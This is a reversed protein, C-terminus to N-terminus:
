VAMCYTYALNDLVLALNAALGAGSASVGITANILLSTKPKALLLQSPETASSNTPIYSFTQAPEMAGSSNYVYLTIVCPVAVAVSGQAANTICAFRFAEIIFSDVGPGVSITGRPSIGPAKGKLLSELANGTLASVAARSGSPLFLSTFLANNFGNYTLHQYNGVPFFQPAVTGLPNSPKQDDYTALGLECGPAPQQAAGLSVLLALGVVYKM